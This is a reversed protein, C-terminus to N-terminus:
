SDVDIGVIVRSPKKIQQVKSKLLTMVNEITKSKLMITYRFREKLRGNVDDYPELIDLDGDANVMANYVDKMYEELREEDNGRASFTIIYQYPPYGLEERHKLEQKYFDETSQNELSQMLYHDRMFTQVMVPCGLFRLENVWQFVHNFSRFDFANILTDVNVVVILDAKFWKQKVITPVGIVIQVKPDKKDDPGFLGVKRSPHSKNMLYTLREVKSKKAEVEGEEKFPIFDRKNVIMVVYGGAEITQEIRKYVPISLSSVKNPNYGLMDVTQLSEIKAEKFRRITWKNQQAKYWLEVSPLTSLWLTDIKENHSRMMVVDRVHYHPSQEEKYASNSEDFIVIAGLNKCRTFVASRTGVMICPQVQHHRHYVEAEQALTLKKDSAILYKHFCIDIKEQMQGVQYKEPLLVLVSQELKIYKQILDNFAAWKLSEETLGHVLTHSAKTSLEERQYKAVPKGKGIFNPLMIELSEGMSCGCHDSINRALAVSSEDLIPTGDLVEIINSLSEYQSMGQFGVVYGIVKRRNFLVRVRVGVAIRKQMGPQVAYDFHTDLPVGSIVVLAINKKM